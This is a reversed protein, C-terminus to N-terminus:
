EDGDEEQAHKIADFIEAVANRFNERSRSPKPRCEGQYSLADVVQRLRAITASDM